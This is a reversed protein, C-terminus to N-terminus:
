RVADVRDSVPQLDALTSSPSNLYFYATVSVDDSRYFNEWGNRQPADGSQSSTGNGYLRIITGDNDISVPILPVNEKQLAAV